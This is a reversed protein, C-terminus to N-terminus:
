WFVYGWWCAWDRQWFVRGGTPSTWYMGNWVVAFSCDRRGNFGAQWEDGVREWTGGQPNDVDGWYDWYAFTGDSLIKFDVARSGDPKRDYFNDVPGTVKLYVALGTVLLLVGLVIILWRWRM